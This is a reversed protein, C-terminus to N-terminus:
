TRTHMCRTLRVRYYMGVLAFPWTFQVLQKLALVIRLDFLFYKIGLLITNWIQQGFITRCTYIKIWWLCRILLLESCNRWVIITELPLFFSDHVLHDSEFLGSIEDVSLSDPIVRLSPSFSLCFVCIYPSANFLGGALPHCCRIDIDNLQIRKSYKSQGLSHIMKFVDM